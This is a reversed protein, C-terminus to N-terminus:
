PQTVVFDDAEATTKYTALGYSGALHPANTDVAELVPTGNVYVRLTNAIIDMRLTYWSMTAVHLPASDLVTVAGQTLKRLSITNNNRVTVYYYNSRDRFRGILGFWREGGSAFQLARMRSKITQDTAAVGIVARADGSLSHQRFAASAFPGDEWQTECGSDSCQDLSNWPAFYDGGNFDDYRLRLRPNPSVILNDFDAQTRYMAIGVRGDTLSDDRASAMLAGNVYVRLLQGIAELRVTYTRNLSVPLPATMLTQYVGNVM